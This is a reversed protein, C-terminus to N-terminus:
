RRNKYKEMIKKFNNLIVNHDNKKLNAQIEYHTEVGELGKMDAIRYVYFVLNNDIILADESVPYKKDIFYNRVIAEALSGRVGGKGSINKLVENSAGRIKKISIKYGTGLCNICKPEAQNTKIDVCTCKVDKIPNVIYFDYSCAEIQEKIKRDFYARKM